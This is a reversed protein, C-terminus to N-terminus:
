VHLYVLVQLHYIFHSMLYYKKSIDISEIGM